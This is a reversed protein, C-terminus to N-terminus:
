YSIFTYLKYNKFLLRIQNTYVEPIATLKVKLNELIFGLKTPLNTKTFEMILNFIYKSYLKPM